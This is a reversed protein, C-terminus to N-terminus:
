AFGLLHLIQYFIGIALVVIMFYVPANGGPVIFAPKKGKKSRAKLVMLGTIIGMLGGMFTGSIQLFLVFGLKVYIYIMFPIFAALFWGLRKDLGIDKSYIHKIANTLALFTPTMAILVFLVGLGAFQPIGLVAIENVDMGFSGTFVFSFLLYILVVIAMRIGIAPMLRKEKGKLIDRMEPIVTYGLLGFLVIGFPFFVQSIDLAQLNATKVNTFFIFCFFLLLLIKFASVVVEGAEFKPVGFFVLTAVIVFFLTGFLMASGGFFSALAIGIAILFAILATYLGFTEILLTFYKWKPGLHHKALGTLHHKEKHRLSLEAVYLAMLTAVIGLLILTIVGTLFGARAFVYPFGLISAGTVTGVLLAIAKLDNSVM